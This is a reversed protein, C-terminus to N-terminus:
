LTALMAQWRAEAAVRWLATCGHQLKWKRFLICPGMAKHLLFTSMEKDACNSFVGHVRGQQANVQPLALLISVQDQVETLQPQLRQGGQRAAQLPQKAELVAQCCQRRQWRAQLRQGHLLL